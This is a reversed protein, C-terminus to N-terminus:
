NFGVIRLAKKSKLSHTEPKPNLKLEKKLKFDKDLLQSLQGYEMLFADHGHISQVESYSSDKKYKRLLQFLHWQEQRTFLQDSDVSILHVRTKSTKAWRIIDEKKLNEGITKLLHNMLKYAHLDFRKNLADGHYNLWSEVAYISEGESYRFGFKQQFSIPTRYLLMAHRRADVLPQSSHNLISDQVLVQGIVWDSAAIHTAIPILQGIAQPRLLSMEWAIAGGLSGGIVTHLQNIKLGDLAQWFIEAIIQTTFARYDALPLHNETQYGNGPINFALVTYHNLDITKGEGILEKWWGNTGAVQSNGTLAHHVLVLPAEFLPRGFLQYSLEIELSKGNLNYTLQIKQLPNM